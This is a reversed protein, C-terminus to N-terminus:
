RLGLTRAGAASRLQAALGLLYIVAGAVVLRHTGTSPSSVPACTIAAVFAVWFLSDQVTFVHGRLADDVDIQMALRRM